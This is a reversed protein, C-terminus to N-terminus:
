QIIVLTGAKKAASYEDYSQAANKIDQQFRKKNPKPLAHTCIILRGVDYFWTVRNGDNTKLEFIQRKPEILRSKRKDNTPPGRESTQKFLAM